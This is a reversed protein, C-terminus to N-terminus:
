PVLSIFKKKFNTQKKQKKSKNKINIYIAQRVACVNKKTYNNKKKKINIYNINIKSKGTNSNGHKPLM